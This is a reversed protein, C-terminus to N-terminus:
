RVHARDRVLAVTCPSVPHSPVIHPESFVGSALSSLALGLPIIALAWRTLGAGSAVPRHHALHASTGYNAETGVRELIRGTLNPVEELSRVRLQRTLAGARKDFERCAGCGGLHEPVGSPLGDRAEGDLAASLHERVETCPMTSPRRSRYRSM